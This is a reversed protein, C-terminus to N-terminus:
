FIIREIHGEALIKKDRISPTPTVKTEFMDHFIQFLTQYPVGVDRMARIVWGPEVSEQQLSASELVNCLYGPPHPSFKPSDLDRTWCEVAFQIQTHLKRLPFVNENPYYKTGIEKVKARLVDFPRLGSALADDQGQIDTIAHLCAIPLSSPLTLAVFLQPHPLPSGRGYKKCEQKNLECKRIIESWISEVLPRDKHDSTHLILLKIENLRLPQAFSNYLDSITMLQGNLELVAHEEDPLSQVARLVELQVRAVDIKEELDHLLEGNGGGFGGPGSSKANAVARSLYEIRKNLDIDFIEAEALESLVRAAKAFQNNQVYYQWLLDARALSKQRERQLFPEVYPSQVQLLQDTFGQQILWEYLCYHFLEDDSSIAREFVQQRYAEMEESSMRPWANGMQGRPVNPLMNLSSLINFILEYCKKRMKFRETRGDMASLNGEKWYILGYGAPDHTAAYLLVLDIGGTHYRLNKYNECIEELKNFHLQEVVKGFLRLSERLLADREQPSQVMKAKQLTEMGQINNFRKTIGSAVSPDPDYHLCPEPDMVKYLFVDNASCFSPCRSRLLDSILDVNLQEDIQKDVLSTIMKKGVERGKQTTVLTEYTLDAVDKRDGDAFGQVLQPLNHDILLLVLAIAELTQKLLVHINHLSQQEAQIADIDSKNEAYGFRASDFDNPTPAMTFYSHQQLFENLADLNRQVSVLEEITLNSDLRNRNGTTPSRRTVKQKWIPKLLRALYIALGGHRGSFIFDPTTLPTGLPGGVDMMNLDPQQVTQDRTTPKGGLDFFFKKAGAVIVPNFRGPVEPLYRSQPTTAPHGCAIALCMACAQDNGYSNFFARLAPTIQGNAEALVDQLLDIPRKKSLMAVGSHTLLLFRRPPLSLQTSLENLIVGPEESKLKRSLARENLQGVESIAWTKGEIYITSYQECFLTQSSHSILGIDSAIGMISDVDESISNAMMLLGNGYLAEHIRASTVAGNFTSMGRDPFFPSPPPRVYVLQLSGPTARTINAAQNPDTFNRYVESSTIGVLHILASELTSVPHISVIQFTRPDLYGSFPYAELARQAPQLIDNLKSVKQFGKGDTGLYILEINSNVSLTYLINRADDVVVSLVPDEQTFQLFTPIFYSVTSSTHNLKRCKRTFWGEEAQYLLEYLHGNNGCMFIRGTRTSVISTMSINDSPVSMHTNYLTLERKKGGDAGGSFAVGLLIIEIPTAVILLYEIQDIFVGPIPKALGVSVIVQDQDEFMYFDDGTKLLENLDPFKDRSLENDVIKAASRLQSDTPTPVKSPGSMALM